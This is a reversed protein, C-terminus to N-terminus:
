DNKNQSEDNIDGYSVAVTDNAHSIDTIMRLDIRHDQLDRDADKDLAYVISKEIINSAARDEKAVQYQDFLSEALM